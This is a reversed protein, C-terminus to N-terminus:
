FAMATGRPSRREAWCAIACVAKTSSIGLCCHSFSATLAKHPLPWGVWQLWHPARCQARASYIFLFDQKWTIYYRSKRKKREQSPFVIRYRWLVLLSCSKKSWADSKGGNPGRFVSIRLWSLHVRMMSKALRRVSDLNIIIQMTREPNGMSKRQPSWCLFAQSFSVSQSKTSFLGKVSKDQM